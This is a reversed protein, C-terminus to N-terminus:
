KILTYNELVLLVSSQPLKTQKQKKVPSYEFPFALPLPRQVLGDVGKHGHSDAGPCQKEKSVRQLEDPAIESTMLETDKQKKASM